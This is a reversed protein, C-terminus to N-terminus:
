PAVPTASSRRSRARLLSAPEVPSRPVSATATLTHIWYVGSLERSRRPPVGESGRSVQMLGEFGKRGVRCLRSRPASRVGREEESQPSHQIRLRSAGKMQAADAMTRLRRGLGVSVVENHDIWAQQPYPLFDSGDTVRTSEPGGALHITSSSGRTLITMRLGWRDPHRDPMGVQLAIPPRRPRRRPFPPGVRRGRSLSPQRRLPRGSTGGAASRHGAGSLRDGDSPSAARSNACIGKLGSSPAAPLIAVPTAIKPLGALEPLGTAKRGGRV